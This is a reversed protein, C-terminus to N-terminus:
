GIPIRLQEPFLLLSMEIYQAVHKRKMRDIIVFITAAAEDLDACDVPLDFAISGIIACSHMKVDPDLNHIKAIQIRGDDLASRIDAYTVKKM